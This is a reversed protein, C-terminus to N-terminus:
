KGPLWRSAACCALDARKRVTQGGVQQYLFFCMAINCLFNPLYGFTRYGAFYAIVCNQLVTHQFVALQIRVPYLHIVVQLGGSIHVFFCQGTIAVRFIEDHYRISIGCYRCFRGIQNQGRRHPHFLFASVTVGFPSSLKPM